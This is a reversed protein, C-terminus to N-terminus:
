DDDLKRVEIGRAEGGRAILRPHSQDAITLLKTTQLEIAKAVEDSFRYGQRVLQIQAVMWPPDSFGAFGGGLRIMKAANSAAAVVSAEEVCMPVLYDRGNLRFNTAVAMPLTLCGIVNEIMHDAAEPDLADADADAFREPPLGTAIAVAER